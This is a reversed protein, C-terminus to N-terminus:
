TSSRRRRESEAFMDRYADRDREPTLASAHERLASATLASASSTEISRFMDQPRSSAPRPPSIPPSRTMHPHSSAPRRSSPLLFPVGAVCGPTNARSALRVDSTVMVELVEHGDVGKGRTLVERPARRRPDARARREANRRREGSVRDRRGRPSTEMGDTADRSDGDGFGGGRRDEVVVADAVIGAPRRRFFRRARAGKRAKAKGKAM